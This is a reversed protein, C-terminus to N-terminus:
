WGNAIPKQFNFSKRELLKCLKYQTKQVITQTLIQIQDYPPIQTHTGDFSHIIRKSVILIINRISCENNRTMRPTNTSISICFTDSPCEHGHGDIAM